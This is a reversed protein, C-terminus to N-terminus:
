FCCPIEYCVGKNKINKAYIIEYPDDKFNFGGINTYGLKEYFYKATENSQTSTLVYDFYLNFMEKEWFEVLNKGLGKKQFEPLIYLMNMFPTNDWFMNYRLWGAFTNNHNIIYVRELNILNILEKKSIHKDYSLLIELDTIKAKFIM